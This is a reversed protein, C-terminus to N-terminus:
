PRRKWRMLIGAIAGLALCISLIMIPSEYFVGSKIGLLTGMTFAFMCASWFMRWDDSMNECAKYVWYTGLVTLLIIFYMSYPGILTNVLQETTQENEHAFWGLSIVCLLSMCWAIITGQSNCPLDGDAQFLPLKGLMRRLLTALMLVLITLVVFLMANEDNMVLELFKGIYALGDKMETIDRIDAPNVM